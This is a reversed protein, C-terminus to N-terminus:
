RLVDRRRFVCGWGDVVDQARDVRIVRPSDGAVRWRLAIALGDMEIWGLCHAILSEFGRGESHLDSARVLQALRGPLLSRRVLLDSYSM